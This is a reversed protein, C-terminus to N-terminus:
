ASLHGPLVGAGVGGTVVQGVGSCALEASIELSAEDLTM